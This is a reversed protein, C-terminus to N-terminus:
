LNRDKSLETGPLSVMSHKLHPARLSVQVV